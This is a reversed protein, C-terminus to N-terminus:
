IISGIEGSGKKRSAKSKRFRGEGGGEGLLVPTVGTAVPSPLTLPCGM